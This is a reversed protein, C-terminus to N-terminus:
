KKQFFFGGQASKNPGTRKIFNWFFKKFFLFKENTKHFELNRSGNEAKKQSFLQKRKPWPVGRAEQAAIKLDRFNKWGTCNNPGTRKNNKFIKGGQASILGQEDILCVLTLRKQISLDPLFLLFLLLCVTVHLASSREREFLFTLFQEKNKDANCLRVGLLISVAHLGYPSIVFQGPILTM